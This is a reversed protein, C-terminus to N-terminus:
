EKRGGSVFLDDAIQVLFQLTLTTMGLSMFFYPIWLKPAWISDTVWGGEWAESFYRWAYFAIFGCFAASLIDGILHRWRNWRPSLISDLVEIGVHARGEQTYAAAMFTSAILLFINLELNWDHPARFFYRSVVEFSIALTSFVILLASMYGTVVNSWRVVLLFARWAQGM